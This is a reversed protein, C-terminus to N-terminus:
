VTPNNTPTLLEPNEFINGIVEHHRHAFDPDSLRKLDGWRGWEQKIHYGVFKGDEFRVEYVYQDTLKVLDGEYVDTGNSDKLGTFQMWRWNDFGSQIAESETDYNFKDEDALQKLTYAKMVKNCADWARFKIDRTM